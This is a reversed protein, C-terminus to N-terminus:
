AGHKRGAWEKLLERVPSEAPEPSDDDQEASAPPPFMQRLQASKPILEFIDNLVTRLEQYFQDIEASVQRTVADAVGLALQRRLRFVYVQHRVLRQDSEGPEEPVDQHWPM